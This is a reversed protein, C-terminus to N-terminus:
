KGAAVYTPKSPKPKSPKTGAAGYTPKTGATGYTATAKAAEKKQKLKQFFTM